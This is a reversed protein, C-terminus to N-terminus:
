NHRGLPARGIVHRQLVQETHGPQGCDWRLSFHTGQALAGPTRM